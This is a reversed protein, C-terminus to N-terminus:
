HFQGFVQGRAMGDDTPLCFDDAFERGPGLLLSRLDLFL